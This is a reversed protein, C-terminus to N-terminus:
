EVAIWDLLLEFPGAQKDSVMLGLRRIREPQLPDAAPVQRGRFTAVFAAIPLRVTGWDDQPPSFRQQYQVGDYGDDTRVTFKYVRGDGSRCRVLLASAGATDWAQPESRVSAFGGGYDLSVHGTFSAVGPMAARRLASTSVGGMVVDDVNRWASFDADGDFDVLVRLGGERQAGDTDSGRATM